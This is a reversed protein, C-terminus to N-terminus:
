KVEKLYALAGTKQHFAIKLEEIEKELREIMEDKSVKEKQGNDKIKPQEKIKEV